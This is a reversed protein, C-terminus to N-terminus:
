PLTVIEQAGVGAAGVDSGGDMKDGLGGCEREAGDGEDDGGATTAGGAVDGASEIPSGM